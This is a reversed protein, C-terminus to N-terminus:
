AYPMLGEEQAKIQLALFKGFYRALALNGGMYWYGPQGSGRWMTRFEGEQDFGWVDRTQDALKDGFLVRTQTRMNQYGTAFVVIDAPLQTGDAMELGSESVKAIAQGSKVKIKGEIILQSAGVDIYYGGGRQFYKLFLGAGDTGRDLAFGAKQLGELLQTDHEIELQTVQVQVAKFINTPSSWLLLDADDVPLTAQVKESYLGGLGIDAIAKSSVVCTSSRQVMTVEYGNEYLDQAIDHGSNCSGVVVARRVKSEQGAAPPKAGPFESSHCLLEGKFSDVGPVTPMNKKGSHGTAQVIHQPHFTRTETKGTAADTREVTVTYRKAAADYALSKIETRTWVNLELLAVYAEFFDGLKDKPTFIPWFAPFNLYPMHDFWIPDHLVLQRYRGRWNDGVRQERDVVLTKVGLMKLRAALTLGGQGAGLILVSPESATFALDEERQEKWNKMNRGGGHSAGLTRRPGLPEEHGKLEYLATYFTYIKWAGGIYILRFVGRGTGVSSEFTTYAVVCPHKGYVDLSAQVPVRQPQSKDVAFSTLQQKTVKASEELFSAIKEPSQVTRFGWSLALHDRWQGCPTFLSSLGKYDKAALSKNIAAVADEAVKTVDTGEPFTTEPFVAPVVNFSGDEMRNDHPLRDALSSSAM